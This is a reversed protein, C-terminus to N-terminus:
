KIDQLINLYNELFINPSFYEQFLKNNAQGLESRQTLPFEIIESVKQIAVDISDFLYIGSNTFNKFYKNGGTDSALVIKGLSLVELMILDFYTEKNPLIFMDAAAIISHPDDTWGVEIWNKNPLGKLPEEKGAILFYVNNNDILKKGIEKLIDYGKTSNHRGVYSIIFSDKPINYKKLIEEKSLKASCEFIGTPIYKFASKRKEKIEIFPKWNNIYPEEAEECPFLIYDARNFSYIDIIELDKLKSGYKKRETETLIDEVIEQHLPKPSHSTLLVKGKYNELNDRNLFMSLPSHFHVIDYEAFDRKAAKKKYIISTVLSNISLYNKLRKPIIRILNSKWNQDKLFNINKIDESELARKLNYVYGSPGGIPKIQNENMYILVNKNFM